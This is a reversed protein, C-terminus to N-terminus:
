PVGRPRLFLSACEDANAEDDGFPLVIQGERRVGSLAFLLLNEFFFGGPLHIAGVDAWDLVRESLWQDRCVPSPHDPAAMM